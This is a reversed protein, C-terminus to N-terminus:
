VVTLILFHPTVTQYNGEYMLIQELISYSESVNRFAIISMHSLATLIYEEVLFKKQISYSELVHSLTAALLHKKFKIRNRILVFGLFYIM